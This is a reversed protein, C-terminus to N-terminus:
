YFYNLIILGFPIALLMGDIRDLLGGHGPLLNGTDKVKSKRKLFSIILDGIQCLISVLISIFIILKMDVFNLTFTYIFAFILTLSLSGIAGSYTKNPSIKSLKKGKFYKGFVYGGIDSLICISILFILNWSLDPYNQLFEDIITKIFFFLYIFVLFKSLNKLSTKSKKKAFIKEIINNFEIWCIVFIIILSSILAISFNLMLLLLFSLIISTFIRNKLENRKM